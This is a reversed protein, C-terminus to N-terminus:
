PEFVVVEAIAVASRKPKGTLSVDCRRSAKDQRIAGAGFALRSVARILPARDARVDGHSVVHLVDGLRLEGAPTTLREGDFTVSDSFAQGGMVAFRVPRPGDGVIWTVFLDDTAVRGWSLKNLGLAWPGVKLQLEESYTEWPGDQDTAFDGGLGTLRWVFADTEFVRPAPPSRSIWEARAAGSGFRAPGAASGAVIRWWPKSLGNGNLEEYAVALGMVSLHARYAIRWRGDPSVADFYQKRLRPRLM